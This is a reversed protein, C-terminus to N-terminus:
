APGAAVGRVAAPRPPPPRNPTSWTFAPAPAPPLGCALPSRGSRGQQRLRATPAVPGPSGRRPAQRGLRLSPRLPGVLFPSLPSRPRAQFMDGNPVFEMVLALYPKASFVQPGPFFFRNKTKISICRANSCGACRLGQCLVSLAPAVTVAPPGAAPTPPCHPISLHHRRRSGAAARWAVAGLEGNSAAGCAHWCGCRSCRCCGLLCLLPLM